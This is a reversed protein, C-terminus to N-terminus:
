RAHRGPRGREGSRAAHLAIRELGRLTLAADTRWSAPLWPRVLDANGGTVVIQPRVQFRRELGIAASLIGGVASFMAGAMMARDTRDFAPPGGTLRAPDLAPLGATFTHLAALAMAPGPMIVGGRFVRDTVADVTVATGVDVVIAHRRRPGIAGVAACLRDSGLSRPRRVDIGIPMPTRHSVVIPATGSARAIARRVRATIPANVSALIAGTVRGRRGLVRRLAADIERITGDSRVRAERRVRGGDMRAIKIVTNGADVCLIM